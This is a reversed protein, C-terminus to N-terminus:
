KFILFNGKGKNKRRKIMQNAARRLTNKPSKFGEKLFFFKKEM